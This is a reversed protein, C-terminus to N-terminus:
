LGLIRMILYAALAALAVLCLAISIIRQRRGKRSATTAAEEEATTKLERPRTANEYIKAQRLLRDDYNFNMATDKKCDAAVSLAIFASLWYVLFRVNHQPAACLPTALVDLAERYHM